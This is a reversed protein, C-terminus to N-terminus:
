AYHRFFEYLARCFVILTIAATALKLWRSIKRQDKLWAVSLFAAGLAIGVLWTRTLRAHSAGVNWGNWAVVIGILVWIAIAGVLYGQARRKFLSMVGLFPFLLLSTFDILAHGFENM